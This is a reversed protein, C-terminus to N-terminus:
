NWVLLEIEDSRWSCDAYYSSNTSSERIKRLLRFGDMGPLMIDLVVLDAGDEKLFNLGEEPPTPTFKMVSHHYFNLYLNLLQIDDDIILIKEM